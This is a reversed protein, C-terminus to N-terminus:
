SLHKLRAHPIVSRKDVSFAGCAKCHYRQYAGTTTYSFGKSILSSRGCTPCDFGNRDKKMINLNIPQKIWPLLKKYLKELLIVDQINYEEMTKWAKKDGNMCKVWLIHGEHDKKKGLSLRQAVYDLKNSPFRFQSKVVRLLDIQKIPPPPNMKHIIFEKNLTPMDFKTGNYHVVADAQELLGHIGELMSKPQSKQVSDFYVQKDGLWKASYCMTYSSELLQSLGVNQQWIGWVHAVNPSTEIDLLLIKM